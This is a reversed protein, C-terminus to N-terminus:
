PFFFFHTILCMAVALFAVMGLCGSAPHVEKIIDAKTFREKIEVQCRKAELHSEPSFYGNTVILARYSGFDHHLQACEKEIYFIKWADKIMDAEIAKDTRYYYAMIWLYDWQGNKNKKRLLFYIHRNPEEVSVWGDSFYYAYVNRRYELYNAEIRSFDM